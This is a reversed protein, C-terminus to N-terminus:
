RLEDTGFFRVLFGTGLYFRSHQGALYVSSTVFSGSDVMFYASNPSPTVLLFHGTRIISGFRSLDCVWSRRLSWFELISILLTLNAILLQRMTFLGKRLCSFELASDSWAHARDTADWFYIYTAPRSIEYKLEFIFIDTLCLKYEQHSRVKKSIHSFYLCREWFWPRFPLLGAGPM